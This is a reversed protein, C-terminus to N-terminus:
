MGCLLLLIIIPIAWRFEKVFWIFILFHFGGGHHSGGGHGHGGTMGNSM